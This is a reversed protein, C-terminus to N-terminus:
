RPGAARNLQDALVAFGATQAHDAASLGAKDRLEPRAGGELLAKVLDDWGNRAALMLPTVGGADAANFLRLQEAAAIVAIAVGPQGVKPLKAAASKVRENVKSILEEMAKHNGKVGAKFLATTDSEVNALDKLVVFDPQTQEPQAQAFLLLLILNLM